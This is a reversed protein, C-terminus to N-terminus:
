RAIGFLMGDGGDTKNRQDRAGRGQTAVAPPHGGQEQDAPKEADAEIMGGESEGGSVAIGIQM